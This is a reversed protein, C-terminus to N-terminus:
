NRRFSVLILLYVILLFFEIMCSVMLFEYLSKKTITFIIREIIWTFPILVLLVSIIYFLKTKMLHLSTYLRRFNLGLYWITKGTIDCIIEDRTKKM